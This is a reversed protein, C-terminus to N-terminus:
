YHYHYYYYHYLFSLRRERDITTQCQDFRMLSWWLMKASFGHVFGAQVVHNRTTAVPRFNAGFQHAEQTERYCGVCGFIKKLCVWSTPPGPGRRQFIHSRWNPHHICGLILPFIEFQHCGFWWGTSCEVACWVLFAWEGAHSRCRAESRLARTAGPRPRTWPWDGWPEPFCSVLPIDCSELPFSHNLLNLPICDSKMSNWLINEFELYELPIQHSVILNLPIYIITPKCGKVVPM